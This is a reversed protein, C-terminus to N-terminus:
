LTDPDLNQTKKARYEELAEDALKSLVGSSNEFSKSWHEEAHLEELIWEVFQNQENPSLKELESILLELQIM